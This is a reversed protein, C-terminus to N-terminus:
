PYSALSFEAGTDVWADVAEMLGMRRAILYEGRWASGLIGSSRM